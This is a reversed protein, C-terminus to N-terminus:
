EAATRDPIHILRDIYDRMVRRATEADIRSTPQASKIWLGDIMANIGDAALEVRKVPVVDRLNYLLNSRLRREYLRMLRQMTPYEPITAYMAYWASRIEPTFMTDDFQADTMAYLRRRPDNGARTLYKVTLDAIQKNLTRLTAALLGAKDDFYHAVIGPSLGARRSVRQVTTRALGEDHMCAITAEILQKQRIPQMGLKPM